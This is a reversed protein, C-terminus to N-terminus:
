YLIIHVKMCYLLMEVLVIELKINKVKNTKQISEPLFSWARGVHTDFTYVSILHFDLSINESNTKLM